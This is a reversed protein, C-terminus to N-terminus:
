EDFDNSPVKDEENQAATALAGIRGSEGPGIIIITGLRPNVELRGVMFGAAQAGKVVRAIDAQTIIERRPM